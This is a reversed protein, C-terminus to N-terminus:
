TLINRNLRAHTRAHSVTATHQRSDTHARVPEVSRKLRGLKRSTVRRQKVSVGVRVSTGTGWLSFSLELIRKSSSPHARRSASTGLIFTAMYVDDGSLIANVCTGYDVGASANGYVGESYMCVPRTNNWTHPLAHTHM